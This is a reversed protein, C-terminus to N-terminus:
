AYFNFNNIKGFEWGGVALLLKINPNANKLDILPNKDVGSMVGDKMDAFSYIVTTCLYPHPKTSVWSTFYCIHELATCTKLIAIFAFLLCILIKAM